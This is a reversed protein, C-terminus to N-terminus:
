DRKSCRPQCKVNGARNDLVQAFFLFIASAARRSQVGLGDTKGVLTDEDSKELAVSSSEDESRVSAQIANIM